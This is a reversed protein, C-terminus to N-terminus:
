PQLTMFAGVQHGASHHLVLRKLFAFAQRAVRGMSRFIRGQAYTCAIGQAEATVGVPLGFRGCRVFRDRLAFTAQGAMHPVGTGFGVQKRCLLPRDAKFAMGPDHLLLFGEFGMLGKNFAGAALTM